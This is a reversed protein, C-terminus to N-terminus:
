APKKSAYTRLIEKEEDTPTKGEAIRQLILDRETPLEEWFRKLNDQFEDELEHEKLIPIPQTALKDLAAAYESDRWHELIQGMHTEPHQQIFSLMGALLEAGAVGTSAIREPQEVSMALAPQHLLLNILFRVRSFEKKASRATPRQSPRKLPPEQDLQTARLLQETSLNTRKSLANLMTEHFVGGPLKQLL